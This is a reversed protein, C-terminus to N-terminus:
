GKNTDYDTLMYNKRQWLFLKNIYGFSLIIASKIYCWRKTKMTM